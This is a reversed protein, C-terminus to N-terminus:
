ALAVRSGTTTAAKPDSCASWGAATSRPWSTACAGQARDRRRPAHPRLDRDLVDAAGLGGVFMVFGFGFKDAYRRAAESLEAMVAADDDWM